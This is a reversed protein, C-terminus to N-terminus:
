TSNCITPVSCSSSPSGCGSMPGGSFVSAKSRTSTSELPVTELSSNKAVASGLPSGTESSSCAHSTIAPLPAPAGDGSSAVMAFRSKETSCHGAIALASCGTRSAMRGAGVKSLPQSRGVGGQAREKAPVSATHGNRLGSPFFTGERISEVSRLDANLAAGDNRGRCPKRHALKARAVSRALHGGSADGCAALGDLQLQLGLLVRDFERRAGPQADQASRVSVGGLPHRAACRHCLKSLVSRSGRADDVVALRRDFQLQVGDHGDLDRKCWWKVFGTTTQADDEIAGVGETVGRDLRPRAVRQSGCAVAELQFVATHLREVQIRGIMALLAEGGHGLILLNTQLQALVDALGRLLHLIRDGIRVHADGVLGEVDACAHTLSYLPRAGM